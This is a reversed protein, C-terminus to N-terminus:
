RQVQTDHRHWVQPVHPLKGEVPHKRDRLAQREQQQELARQEEDQRQLEQIRQYHNYVSTSLVKKAREQGVVFQDLHEKLLKPTIKPAGAVSAGGLPGSTPADPEYIGTFPQNGFDSRRFRGENHRHSSRSFKRRGISCLALYSVRAQPSIRVPAGSLHLTLSEM